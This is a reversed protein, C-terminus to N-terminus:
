TFMSTTNPNILAKRKTAMEKSPRSHRSKLSASRKWNWADNAVVAWRPRQGGLNL